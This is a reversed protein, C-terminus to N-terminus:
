AKMEDQLKDGGVDKGDETDIHTFWSPTPGYGDEQIMSSWRGRTALIDDDCWFSENEVLAREEDTLNVPGAMSYPDGLDYAAKDDLVHLAVRVAEDFPAREEKPAPAKAPELPTLKRPPHAAWKAKLDAQHEEFTVRRAAWPMRPERSLQFENVRTKHQKLGLINDISFLPVLLNDQLAAELWNEPYAYTKGRFTFSGETFYITDGQTVELPKCHQKDRTMPAAVKFDTLAKYGWGKFDFLTGWSIKFPLQM